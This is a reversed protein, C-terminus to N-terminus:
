TPGQSYLKYMFAFSAQETSSWKQKVKLCSTFFIVLSLFSFSNYLIPNTPVLFLPFDAFSKGFIHETSLRTSPGMFLVEKMPLSGLFASGPSCKPNLLVHPCMPHRPLPQCSQCNIEFAVGVMLSIIDMTWHVTTCKLYIPDYWIIDCREIVSWIEM